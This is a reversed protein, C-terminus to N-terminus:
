MNKSKAVPKEYVFNFEARKTGFNVGDVVIKVKDGLKYTTKGDSLSYRREDFVYRKGKLKEIGILGEVGNELEAFVGFGTVGSVIAEFEEGIKDRAYLLKYFDDAAREADDSVKERESSNKAAEVVFEGYKEELGIEGGLLAKLVRHVALDAYRRIPSTFHCYHKLALGFHGFDVESYKAKQMSRLMVRNILFFLPSGETRDLVKAFDEPFIEDKRRKVNIGLNKVYEFFGDAKDQAPERHVRYVCPTSSYYMFEAVACNAAIMFEEIIGHPKDRTAATINVMGDEAVTINSEKVDLDISGERKRKASLIDALEEMHKLATAIKKRKKVLAENGNLIEGVEGYTLRAASKIYSPVILTDTREGAENIRMVCSLTLRVEGQKLSCLDNSLREPLMPIVAEPFYVSTGRAFAEADLATGERVYHSVDAIHVGLLYDNGDKEISVADDFDRSDDGDITMALKQTYDRRGSLVEANLEDSFNQAEAWVDDPFGDPLKFSYLLAKLEATKDFQRGLKKTIIGEPNQRKPYATIRCVVKDGSMARVGVGSRISVDSFYKREDPVVFGGRGNFFCTGVIETIGREIVKLVCARTREGDAVTAALVRDGHMAGKLDGHPIFYDDGGDDPILFAYGRENGCIKGELVSKRM